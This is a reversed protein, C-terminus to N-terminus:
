FVFQYVSVLFVYLLLDAACIRVFVNIPHMGLNRFYDHYRSTFPYSLLYIVPYSALKVFVTMSVLPLAIFLGIVVVNFLLFWLAHLQLFARYKEM